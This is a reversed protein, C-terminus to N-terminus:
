CWNLSYIKYSYHEDSWYLDLSAYFRDIRMLARRTARSCIDNYWTSYSFCCQTPAEAFGGSFFFLNLFVHWM